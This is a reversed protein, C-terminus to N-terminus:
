NKASAKVPVDAAPTFEYKHPAPQNAQYIQQEFDKAKALLEAVKAKQGTYWQDFESQKAAFQADKSDIKAFERRKGKLQGYQDRLPHYAMDNRQQNLTAVKLAQQYEPTKANEELEVGFGLQGATYTGILEGDIKFDYRGEKLGRVSVKENSYHHGAHTMKYGDAAKLGNAKDPPMVWPLKDAAFTFSVSSNTGNFDTVQGGAATPALKGAKEDIMIQTCQSHPVIDDLMAVAMVVQGQAGPHVGDPIM